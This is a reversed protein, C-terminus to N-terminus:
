SCWHNASGRRRGIRWGGGLRAKGAELFQDRWQRLTNSSVGHRRAMVELPEVGKLASLVLEARQEISLSSQRPM